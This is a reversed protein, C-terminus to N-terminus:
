SEATFGLGKIVVGWSLSDAKLREALEAPTSWKAELGRAVMAQTVEQTESAKKLALSLRQVQPTPTKGPLFFGFWESTVVDKYGLEVLTPVNPVFRSRTASTVALLRCKGSELFPLFDSVPSVVAAIQGGVMDNIAPGPGRFPVHAFEFGAARGLMSGAFHPTSGAAPSGFNSLAPNAKCWAVLDAVTKVSAPVMPGIGLALELTAGLSVPTFDAVPDYPLRKYTHTYMAMMPMPTLLITASDPAANKVYTVAIQGSGGVRNEVIVNRAYGPSIADAIRRALADLITGAPSGVVIKASDMNGAIGQSWAPAISIAGIAAASSYQLLRRRSLPASANM